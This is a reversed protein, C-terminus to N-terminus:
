GMSTSRSRSRRIAARNRLPTAQGFLRDIPHSGAVSSVADNGPQGGPDKGSGTDHRRTDDIMRQLLTASIRRKLARLAAKRGM